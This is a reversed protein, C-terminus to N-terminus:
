YLAAAPAVTTPARAARCEGHRTSPGGGRDVARRGDITRDPAMM